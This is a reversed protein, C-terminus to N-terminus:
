GNEERLKKLDIMIGVKALARVTLEANMPYIDSKGTQRESEFHLFQVYNESFDEKSYILGMIYKTKIAYYNVPKLGTIVSPDNKMRRCLDEFDEDVYNIKRCKLDKVVKKLPPDDAEAKKRKFIGLM